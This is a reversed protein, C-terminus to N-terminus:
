TPYGTPRGAVSEFVLQTWNVATLALENVVAFLNEWDNKSMPQQPDISKRAWDIRFFPPRSSWVVPASHLDHTLERNALQAAQIHQVLKPWSDFGHERAIVYQADALVPTSVGPKHKILRVTATPAGRRLERLFEKAQKRLQELSPRAPLRNASDSM